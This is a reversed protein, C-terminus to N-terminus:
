RRRAVLRSAWAALRGWPPGLKELLNIRGVAHVARAHSFRLFGDRGHYAGMGSAGVGGFPLNDQAIHLLTGNLTVGGSIAGALVRERTHREHTFCYLSLPRARANVFALAGDLTDYAVIPLIPGFIEETMLLNDAPVDLVVTPALKGARAADPHTLVRAGAARAAALADVLRQQHAPTIQNTYDANDQITPYCRQAAALVAHALPDARARDVLVYDPAICTQGANLFKGFAISRAAAELPYDAGVLAPSKGGLELTVPTLNAAAAQMVQRGVRTSGTFVLHDFPLSAFAQAMEVGGEVVAVEAGDFCGAMLSALLSAYRPTLESPKLLVRNGAALADILPSLTLLLPYNWPALIGVVGLPEHRVWSRAPLFLLDVSRREPRAWAALHRRTNRISNLVPLVELLRTEAVSRGGFDAAIAAAIAAENDLVLQRLKLLAAQRAALTPAPQARSARRQREFLASLGDSTM